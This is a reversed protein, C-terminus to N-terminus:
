LLKSGIQIRRDIEGTCKGESNREGGLYTFLNTWRNLWQEAGGTGTV